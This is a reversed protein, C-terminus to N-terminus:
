SCTFGSQSHFQFPYQVLLFEFSLHKICDIYARADVLIQIKGHIAPNFIDPTHCGDLHPWQTASRDPLYYQLGAQPLSM